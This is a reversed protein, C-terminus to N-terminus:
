IGIFRLCPLCGADRGFIPISLMVPFPAAERSSLLFIIESLKGIARKALPPAKKKSTNLFADTILYIGIHINILLQM